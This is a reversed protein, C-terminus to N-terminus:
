RTWTSTLNMVGTPSGAFPEVLEGGDVVAGTEPHQADVGAAVLLGGDLEEVVEEGISQDVGGPGSVRPGLQLPSGQRPRGPNLTNTPAGITEASLTLLHRLPDTLPTGTMTAVTGASPPRYPGAVEIRRLEAPGARARPKTHHGCTNTARRSRRREFSRKPRSAPAIARSTNRSSKRLVSEAVSSPKRIPAISFLEASTRTYSSM